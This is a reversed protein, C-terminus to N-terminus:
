LRAENYPRLTSVIADEDLRSAERARARLRGGDPLSVQRM